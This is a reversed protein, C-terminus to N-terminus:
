WQLVYNKCLVLQNKKYGPSRYLSKLAEPITTSETETHWFVCFFIDLYYFPFIYHCIYVCLLCIIRDVVTPVTGFDVYHYFFGFDIGRVCICSLDSEQILVPVKIFLQLTLSSQHAWVGEWLKYNRRMKKCQSFYNWMTTSYEYYKHYYKVSFQNSM